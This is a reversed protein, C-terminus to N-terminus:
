IGSSGHVVGKLNTFFKRCFGVECHSDDAARLSIRQIKGYGMEPGDAGIAAALARDKRLRLFIEAAHECDAWAGEARHYQNQPDDVEVLRYRVPFSNEETMYNMNGSWGTAIVPYGACMAEALPLGFGESRRLLAFADAGQWWRYLESRGFSTWRIEINAANEIADLIPSRGAPTPLLSSSGRM